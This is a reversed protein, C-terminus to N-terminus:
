SILYSSEDCINELGFLKLFKWQRRIRYVDAKLVIYPFILLIDDASAEKDNPNDDLLSFLDTVISLSTKLHEM